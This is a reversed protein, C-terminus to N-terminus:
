YLRGQADEQKIPSTEFKLSSPDTLERKAKIESGEGVEDKM